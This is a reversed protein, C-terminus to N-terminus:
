LTIPEYRVRDGEIIWKARISGVHWSWGAVEGIKLQGLPPLGDRRKPLPREARILQGPV